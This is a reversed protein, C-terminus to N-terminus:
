TRPNDQLDQGHREYIRALAAEDDVVRGLAALIDDRAAEVRATVEADSVRRRRFAALRTIM